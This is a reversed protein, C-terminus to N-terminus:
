DELIADTRVFASGLEHTPHRQLFFASYSFSLLSSFMVLVGAFVDIFLSIHVTCLVTVCLQLMASNHLDHAHGQHAAVAFRRGQHIGSVCVVALGLVLGLMIVLSMHKLTALTKQTVESM